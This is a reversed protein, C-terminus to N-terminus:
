AMTSPIVPIVMVKVRGSQQQPETLTLIPVVEQPSLLGGATGLEEPCPRSRRCPARPRKRRQGPPYAALDEGPIKRRTWAAQLAGREKRM